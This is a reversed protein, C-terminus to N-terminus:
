QDARVYRVTAYKADPGDQPLLTPREAHTALVFGGHGFTVWMEAPGVPEAIIAYDYSDWAWEPASTPRWEGENNTTVVKRGESYLRMVEVKGLTTSTDIQELNM